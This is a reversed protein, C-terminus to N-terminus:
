RLPEHVRRRSRILGPLRGRQQDPDQEEPQHGDPERDVPRAQEGRPTVDLVDGVAGRQGTRGRDVLRGVAGARALVHPQIWGGRPLGDVLQQSRRREWRRCPDIHADPDILDVHADHSHDPREEEPDRSHARLLDARVGCGCRLRALQAARHRSRELRPDRADRARPRSDNSSAPFPPRRSRPWSPWSAETGGAEITVLARGVRFGIVDTRATENRTDGKTTIAFTSTVRFGNAGDGAPDLALPSVDTGVLKVNEPLLNDDTTFPEAYRAAFCDIIGPDELLTRKAEAEAPTAFGDVTDHASQTRKTFQSSTASAIGHDALGRFPTCEDLGKVIRDANTRATGPTAVFGAPLDTLQLLGAALIPRLAQAEPSLTTTTPNRPADTISTSTRDGGTSNGCGVLGVVGVLVLVASLM